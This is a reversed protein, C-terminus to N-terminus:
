TQPIPVTVGAAPCRRWKRRLTATCSIVVAAIVISLAGAVVVAKRGAYRAVRFQWLDVYREPAAHGYLHSATFRITPAVLRYQRVVSPGHPLPHSLLQARTSVIIGPLSMALGAAFLTVVAARRRRHGEDVWPALAALAPIIGPLLLRPGWVWGGDWAPWAATIAFTTILNGKLLWFGARERRWLSRLAAPLLLAAPAFIFLSKTSSFLLGSSGHVIGSGLGVGGQLPDFRFPDSFRVDNYVLACAIAVVLPAMARVLARAGDKRAAIGLLLVAFPLLQPRTLFAMAASSGAALHRKALAREVAVVVFLIALPESFFDKTYPLLYTGAVCGIAIVGSSGREGGLRRALLYLAGVLFGAVIPMLSSTVAESVADPNSTLRAVPRSIAYPLISILPLGLGHSAYYHGDRGQFGLAQSVDLRGHDVLARTTEYTARGDGESVRGSSILLLVLSSLLVLWLAIRRDTPRRAGADTAAVPTRM